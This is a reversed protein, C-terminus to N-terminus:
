AAAKEGALRRGEVSTCDPLSRGLFALWNEGMVGDVQARSFHKRLRM